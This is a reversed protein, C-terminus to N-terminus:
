AVSGGSYDFTNVREVKGTACNAYVSTRHCRGRHCISKDVQETEKETKKKKLYTKLYKIPM